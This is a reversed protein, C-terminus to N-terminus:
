DNQRPRLPPVRNGNGHIRRQGVRDFAGRVVGGDAQDGDLTLALVEGGPIIEAIEELRHGIGAGALVYRHPAQQPREGAVLDRDGGRNMAIRDADAGGHQEM